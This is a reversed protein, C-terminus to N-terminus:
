QGEEMEFLSYSKVVMLCSLAALFILPLFTVNIFDSFIDQDILAGVTLISDGVVRGLTGILTALLGSNFFTGNLAPPSAKAMLSTDVGELVITGMFTASLFVIYVYPGAGWDYPVEKEGNLM